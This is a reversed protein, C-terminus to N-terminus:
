STKQKCSYEGRIVDAVAPNDRLIAMLATATRRTRTEDYEWGHNHEIAHLIEHLLTDAIEDASSTKSSMFITQSDTNFQGADDMKVIKIAYTKGEM